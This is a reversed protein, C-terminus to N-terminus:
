WKIKHLFKSDCNTNITYGSFLQLWEAFNFRILGERSFRNEFRDGNEYSYKFWFLGLDHANIICFYRKYMAFTQEMSWDIKDYIKEAFLSCPYVEGLRLKAFAIQNFDASNNSKELEIDKNTRYDYKINWYNLMDDIVGYMVLDSLGYPRDRITVMNSSILRKKLYINDHPPFTDLISEMFGIADINNIRTDSRTKLLRTLGLEHAMKIGSITSKIQLNINQVGFYDPKINKILIVDEIVPFTDDEWTSVIIKIKPYIARYYNVTELTFDNEWIIPGQILIGVTTYNFEFLRNVINIRPKIQYKYKVIFSDKPSNILIRLFNRILSKLM